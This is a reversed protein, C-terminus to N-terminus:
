DSGLAIEGADCSIYIATVAPMGTRVAIPLENPGLWDALRGPNADLVLRTIRANGARHHIPGLGPFSTQAEWEIFFPLSPEAAAEDIGASHWRLEDGGPTTRSGPRVDLHLRRALEGLHSTRVAWGIPRPNSSLGSAVWRGFPSGAARDPDVVAVLELYSDGLPVIRNATGWAPHHGGEVSTLGHRSEIERGAATLDAVAILVHDLEMSVLTSSTQCGCNESTNLEASTHPGPWTFGAAASGTTSISRAYRLVERGILKPASPLRILNFRAM